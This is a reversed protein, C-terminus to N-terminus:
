ANNTENNPKNDYNNYSINPSNSNKPDFTPLKRKKAIDVADKGDMFNKIDEIIYDKLDNDISRHNSGPSLINAGKTSKPNQIDLIEGRLLMNETNQYYNIVNKVNKEIDNQEIGGGGPITTNTFPIKGSPTADKSDLTIILDFIIDLHEETLEIINDAGMSHGVMIIKVVNNIKRFYKILKLVANKTNETRSSSYVYVKVNKSNLETIKGLGSYDVEDDPNDKAREKGDKPDTPGIGQVVFIVYEKIPSIKLEKQYIKEPIYVRTNNVVAKIEKIKFTKIHLPIILVQGVQLQKSKLNNERIISEETIGYLKAIVALTDGSKVKYKQM